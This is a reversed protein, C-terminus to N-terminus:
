ETIEEFRNVLQGNHEKKDLFMELPRIYIQGYDFSSFVGLEEKDTDTCPRIVLKKEGGVSIIHLTDDESHKAVYLVMKGNNYQPFIRAECTGYLAQYIVYTIQTNTDTVTDIVLYDKSKFHRYKAGIKLAREM